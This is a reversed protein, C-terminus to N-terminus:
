VEQSACLKLTEYGPENCGGFHQRAMGRGTGFAQLDAGIEERSVALGQRQHLSTTIRRPSIQTTRRIHGWM